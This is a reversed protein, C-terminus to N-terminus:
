AYKGLLSEDVPSGILDFFYRALDIGYIEIEDYINFIYSDLRSLSALRRTMAKFDSPSLKECRLNTMAVSVRDRLGDVHLYHPYQPPTVGTVDCDRFEVFSFKCKSLDAKLRYLDPNTSGPEGLFKVESIKGELTNSQFNGVLFEQDMIKCNKFLCSHFHTRPNCLSTGCFHCNIFECNEFVVDVIGASRFDVKKFLSDKIVVKHELGIRANPLDCQIFGSRYVNVGDFIYGSLDENEVRIGELQSCELHRNNNSKFDSGM